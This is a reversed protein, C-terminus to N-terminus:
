KKVELRVNGLWCILQEILDDKNAYTHTIEEEGIDDDIYHLIYKM